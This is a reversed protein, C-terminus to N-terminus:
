RASCGPQTRCSASILGGAEQRSSDSQRLNCCICAHNPVRSRESGLRHRTAPPALPMARHAGEATPSTSDAPRRNRRSASTKVHAGARRGCRADSSVRSLHGSRACLMLGRGAPAGRESTMRGPAPPRRSLALKAQGTLPGHSGPARSPWTPSPERGSRVGRSQPDGALRPRPVPSREHGRYGTVPRMTGARATSAQGCDARSSLM